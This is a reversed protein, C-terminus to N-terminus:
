CNISRMSDKTGLKLGARLRVLLGSRKSFDWRLLPSGCAASGAERLLQFLRWGAAEDEARGLL